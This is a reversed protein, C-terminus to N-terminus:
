ANELINNLVIKVREADIKLRVKDPISVLKLGPPRDDFEKTIKKIIQSINHEQLDLKGLGNRFRESELIEMVMTEMETLDAALSDRKQSDPIFELALKMRTIPSRLEHSVDLLLQDKTKIMERIRKTMENFAQSLRGFEDDNRIPIEANLNGNSIEHVGQYLWRL